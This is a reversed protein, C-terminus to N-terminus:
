FRYRLGADLSRRTYTGQVAHGAGYEFALSQGFWHRGYLGLSRVQTALVQNVATPRDVETGDGFVLQINNREGYYYGFQLRYSTANGAVNSRSPLATFAARYDSFYREVTLDLVDIEASDYRVHKLGGAIGWGGALARALQVRFADRPLVRHTSSAGYELYGTLQASLPVYGALSASTDSLGFRETHQLTGLVLKRKDFQHLVELTQDQWPSRGGTLHERNVRLGIESFRTDSLQAQAISAPLLLAMILWGQPKGPNM